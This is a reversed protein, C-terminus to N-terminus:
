RVRGKPLIEINEETQLQSSLPTTSMGNNLDEKRQKKSSKLGNTIVGSGTVTPSLMPELLYNVVDNVSDFKSAM